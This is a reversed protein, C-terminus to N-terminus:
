VSLNCQEVVDFGQKYIFRENKHGIFNINFFNLFQCWFFLYSKGREWLSKNLHNTLCVQKTQKCFYKSWNLASLMGMISILVSFSSPTMCTLFSAHSLSSAWRTSCFILDDLTFSTNFLSWTASGALRSSLTFIQSSSWMAQKLQCIYKTKNFTLVGKMGAATKCFRSAVM